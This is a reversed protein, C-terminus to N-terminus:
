EEKEIKKLNEFSLKASDLSDRTCIGQEVFAWRIGCDNATHFFSGIDLYGEGVETQVSKTDKVMDKLHIYHLKAANKKMYEVTNIGVYASWFTDLEMKLNISNNFLIDLMYEGDIKLFEFNHNHYCLQIGAKLCMDSLKAILQCTKLWIDRDSRREESVSSITISELGLIQAYEVEKKFNKEFEELSIHASVAKIGLDETLKSLEKADMGYYGAFEIGEYGIEAVKKITAKFDKECKDRVTYLQLGINMIQEM